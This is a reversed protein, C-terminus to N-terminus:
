GCWTGRGRLTSIRVPDRSDPRPEVNCKNILNRDRCDPWPMTSYAKIRARTTRTTMMARIAVPPWALFRYESMTVVIHLLWTPQQFERPPCHGGGRFGGREEAVSHPTEFTARVSVAPTIRGLAGSLM